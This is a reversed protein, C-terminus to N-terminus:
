AISNAVRTSKRVKAAIEAAEAVLEAMGRLMLMDMDCGAFLQCLWCHSRVRCAQVVNLHFVWICASRVQAAIAAIAADLEDMGLSALVHADLTVHTPSCGYTRLEAEVADAVKNTQGQMQLVNRANDCTFQLECRQPQSM